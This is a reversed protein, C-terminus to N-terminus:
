SEDVGGKRIIEVLAKTQCENCDMYDWCNTQSVLTCLNLAGVDEITKVVAEVDYVTQMDKITGIVMNRYAQIADQVLMTFDDIDVDEGLIEEVPLNIIIQVSTDDLKKLLASRSILDGM